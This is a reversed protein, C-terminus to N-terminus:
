RQQEALLRQQTQLAKKLRKRSMMYLVLLALLSVGFATWVYGGYGSMALIESLSKGNM